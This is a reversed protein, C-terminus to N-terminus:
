CGNKCKGGGKMMKGNMAKTLGVAKTNKGKYNKGIIDKYSGLQMSLGDKKPASLIGGGNKMMKKPVMSAAEGGYQMKKKPTKGAKKMAIAIAAQKAAKGGMEMMSIGRKSGQLTQKSKLPTLRSASSGRRIFTVKDSPKQIQTTDGNQAKKIKTGSKAEKKAAVIVDARTVGPNKDFGAKVSKMGLATGKEAKKMKM